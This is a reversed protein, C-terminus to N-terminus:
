GKVLLLQFRVNVKGQFCNMFFDDDTKEVM